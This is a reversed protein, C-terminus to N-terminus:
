SFNISVSRNLTGSQNQVLAIYGHYIILHRALIKCLTSRKLMQNIHWTIYDFINKDRVNQIIKCLIASM